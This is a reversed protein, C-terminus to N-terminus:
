ARLPTWVQQLRLTLVAAVVAAAGVIVAGWRTREMVSLVVALPVVLVSTALYGIFTAFEEPREGGAIRVVAAVAQALLAVELLVLGALHTVGIWRDRAAAGFCWAAVGLSTVIVAIM